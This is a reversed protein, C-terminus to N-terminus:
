RSCKCRKFKRKPRWSRRQRVWSIRQLNPIRIRRLFRKCQLRPSSKTAPRHRQISGLGLETVLLVCLPSRYKSCNKRRGVKLASKSLKSLCKYNILVNLRISIRKLWLVHIICVKSIKKAAQSYEIITAVKCKLSIPYMDRIPWIFSIALSTRILSSSQVWSVKFYNTPLEISSSATKLM